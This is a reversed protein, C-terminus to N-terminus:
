DNPRVLLASFGPLFAVCWSAYHVAYDWGEPNFPRWIGSILYFGIGSGLMALAGRSVTEKWSARSALIRHTLVSLAVWIFAWVFFMVAYGAIPALVYFAGAALFGIAGGIAAGKFTRKHLSGIYGGICSFLIAGHALGYVTRHRLHLGAWVFDGLTSVAAIVLAGIIANRM